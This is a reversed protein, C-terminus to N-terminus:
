LWLMCDSPLGLGGLKSMAEKWPLCIDGDIDGLGVFLCNEGIELLLNGDMGSASGIFISSPEVVTTPTFRFFECECWIWPPNKGTFISSSQKGPQECIYYIVGFYFRQEPRRLNRGWWLRNSNLNTTATTSVMLNSCQQKKKMTAMESVSTISAVRHKLGELNNTFWWNLAM